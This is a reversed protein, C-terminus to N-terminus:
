FGRNRLYHAFDKRIRGAKKKGVTAGAELIVIAIKEALSNTSDAPQRFGTPPIRGLSDQTAILFGPTRSLPAVEHRRM